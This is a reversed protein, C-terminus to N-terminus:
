LNAVPHISFLVRGPTGVLIQPHTKLKEKQREINGSGVLSTSKVGPGKYAEVVRLIQMALEPSPAIIVVRFGADRRARELLPLVYALTKGTGTGSQIVVDKGALVAPIAAVQVPTPTAIGDKDLRQALWEPVELGTTSFAHTM